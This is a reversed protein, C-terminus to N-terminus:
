VLDVPLANALSEIPAGNLSQPGSVDDLSKSFENGFPFGLVRELTRSNEEFFAAARARTRGQGFEGATRKLLARGPRM